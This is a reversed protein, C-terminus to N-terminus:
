APVMTKLPSPPGAEEIAGQRIGTSGSTIARLGYDTLVLERVEIVAGPKSILRSGKFFAEPLKGAATNM